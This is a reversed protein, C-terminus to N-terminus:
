RVFIKKWKAKEKALQKEKQEDNLRKYKESNLYENVKENYKANAEDFRKQGVKNKFKTIKETNSNNWNDRFQYTNASFGLGDAILALLAMAMGDIKKADYAGELVMPITLNKLENQLTPKDGDFDERNVMDKIVQFIPSFKNETFNWFLDMGKSMGFGSLEKKIGSVSSKTNNSKIRAVLNIYPIMGGTIDFRTNGLKIKGFDSSTPDDEVNAGLAKAIMLLMATVSVIKLLNISAQKKTFKSKGRIPEFITDFNSKAFKVSFFAKNLFEQAKGSIPLNGRGTMSNVLRNIAGVEENSKLDVGVNEAMNYLKDALDVRLRMAGAEYSVEAAKFLRGLVPIKAPLSTPFEEEMVGIDLKYKGKTYLGKAYNPRSYIEAKVGDLITDGAINGGVLTKGIDKFSTAFNKAWLKPHTFLVKIGQRGWFSNDVSAKIARSNEAIFNFAISGARGAARPVEGIKKPIIFGKGESIRELGAIYNDYAVKKAGFEIGEKVSNWTGDVNRKAEAEIMDQGLETITQAEELSVDANYKKGYIDATLENLFSENEAPNFKRRRKEAYADKIKQSAAQKQETTLGTIERAWAVLGKEQNVLLLKKEFLANVTKAQETSLFKDFFARREASTMALLKNPDIEKDRFAKKLKRIGEDTLCLVM